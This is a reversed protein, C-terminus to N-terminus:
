YSKKFTQQASSKSPVYTMASCVLFQKTKTKCLNIEVTCANLRAENMMPRYGVTQMKHDDLNSILSYNQPECAVFYDSM